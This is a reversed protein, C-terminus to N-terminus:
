NVSAFVTLVFPPTIVGTGNKTIAVTITDGPAVTAGAVPTLSVAKWATWSGTANAGTLLTTGIAIAVPTGPAAATRKNVTITANNTPDGTLAVSPNLQVAGVAISSPGPGVLGIPTEATATGAAGDLVTKPWEFMGIEALTTGVENVNNVNM